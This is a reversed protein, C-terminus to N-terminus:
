TENRLEFAELESRYALRLPHKPEGNKNRGFCYLLPNLLPIVVKSRELHEGDNGWCVITKDTHWSVQVLWDNNEKGIPESYAKMDKPATARYAFLNTMIMARFGWNQAFKMCKRITNDNVIEDATSPNLGVFNVIGEGFLWERWLTYRYTRCPSFQTIRMWDRNM